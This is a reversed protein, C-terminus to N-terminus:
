ERHSGRRRSRVIWIIGGAVLGVGLTAVPIGVALLRRAGQDRAHVEGETQGDGAIRRSQVGMVILAAGAATGLAGFGVTAVAIPPAATRPPARKPGSALRPAPVRPAPADLPAAGVILALVAHAAASV